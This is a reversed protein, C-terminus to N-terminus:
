LATEDPQEGAESDITSDPEEAAPRTSGDDMERDVGVPLVVARPPLVPSLLFYPALALAALVLLFTAITLM